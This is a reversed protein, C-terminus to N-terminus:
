GKNKLNRRRRRFKIGNIIYKSFLVVFAIAFFPAAGITLYIIM